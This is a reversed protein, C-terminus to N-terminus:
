NASLEREFVSPLRGTSELSDLCDEVTWTREENHCPLVARLTEDVYVAVTIAPPQITQVSRGTRSTGASKEFTPTLDGATWEVLPEFAAGVDTAQRLDGAEALLIQDPVTTIDVAAITGEARLATLRDIVVTREGAVPTRVFLSCTLSPRDGATHVNTDDGM